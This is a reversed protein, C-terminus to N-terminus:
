GPFEDVYRAEGVLALEAVEGLVRVSEGGEGALELRVPGTFSSPVPVLNTLQLERAALRGGALRLPFVPTAGELHAGTVHFHVTQSWGSGSDVGPKGRSRHVYATLVLTCDGGRREIRELQSDHLEVAANGDTTRMRTLDDLLPSLSRLEMAQAPKTQKM